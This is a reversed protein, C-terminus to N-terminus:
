ASHFPNKDEETRASSLFLFAPPLLLAENRCSVITELISLHNTLALGCAEKAVSRTRAVGSIAEDKASSCLVTSIVRSAVKFDSTNVYLVLRFHRVKGLQGKINNRLSHQSCFGEFSFRYARERGCVISTGTDKIRNPHSNTWAEWSRDGPEKCSHAIEVPGSRSQPSTM